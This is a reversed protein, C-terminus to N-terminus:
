GEELFAAVEALVTRDLRHGGHFSFERVVADLSTFRDVERKRWHASLYADSNGAVIAVKSGSFKVGDVSLDPPLSGAWFCSGAFVPVGFDIWRAATAVGQSFGLVYYRAGAPVRAHVEHYVADLYRVYDEIEHERDEKTMWSAGIPGKGDELYFRSLAEPAVILRDGTNMTGLYGLFAPALQGYGHLAFWVHRASEPEGLTCYRATRPVSIHHENM